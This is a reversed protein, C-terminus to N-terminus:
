LTWPTTTWILFFAKRKGTKNKIWDLFKENDKEHPHVPFAVYVAKDTRDEYELEADALATECDFCWPVPKLRQEIFGKEYLGLFSKAITAQYDYSMNLYPKEWEGFVGLRKFEERQIQIFKEAYKRAEKRFAVREVEDKRKGMDKLCQHEIPLGHCDWGPVYLADFGRMTYYKVIMDKLIKNLAHGIHIRGNAYPPGDHLIYKPKGKSKSRIGEYLKESEWKKLIEPERCALDAKMPFPTQPLHVTTAYPKETPMTRCSM